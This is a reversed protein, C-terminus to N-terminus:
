SGEEVEFEGECEDVGDKGTVTGDVAMVVVDANFNVFNSVHVIIEVMWCFSPRLDNHVEKWFTNIYSVKYGMAVNVRLLNNIVGNNVTTCGVRQTNEKVAWVTILQIASKIVSAKIKNGM